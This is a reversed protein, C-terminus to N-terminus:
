SLSLIHALVVEFKVAYLLFSAFLDIREFMWAPLHTKGKTDVLDRNVVVIILREPPLHINM